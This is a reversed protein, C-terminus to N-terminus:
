RGQEEREAGAVDLRWLRRANGGLVAETAAPDRRDLYEALVSLVRGYGAALTCVPWDSGAILRGPGFLDFAVDLYPTLDAPTWGRWDAETVLGSVKCWVGPVRALRELDRAWAEIAGSRIPPKGLHDLVFPQGEFRAAFEAAVRLHRPYILIDYTLGSGGLAAIGRCFDPRLLFRDDPEAQVVHRVGVLRPHRLAALREGVDDARLDVWGVVGAIFPHAEALRLLWKTEAATQTAQVAITADIGARRLEPLLDAPLFDRRLAAMGDDIWGYDLPNYHWFHQHADIRM